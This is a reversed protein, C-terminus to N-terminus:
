QGTSRCAEVTQHESFQLVVPAVVEKWSSYTKHLRLFHMSECVNYHACIYIM